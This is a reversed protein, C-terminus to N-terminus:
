AQELFFVVYDLAAKADSTDLNLLSLVDHLLPKKVEVDIDSDVSLAPSLNVELLWPKFLDDILIDFGYLEFCGRPNESMELAVPLLTLIIISTMREWIKAFPIDNAQCYERLRLLDWKCGLGVGSKPENLTPCRLDFKYGSILLPNPIYRQLIANCDYTLNELNKFVFIKRGRSLDAPKCIWMSKSGQEEENAYVRVFKVYDNPLSFTQPFFDYARGYIGKMTKLTRFLSDRMTLLEIDLDKVLDSNDYELSWTVGKWWLNWYKSEGEVFPIWGEAEFVEKLLCPGTDAMRYVLMPNDENEHRNEPVRALPHAGAGCGNQMEVQRKDVPPPNKGTEDSTRLERIEIDDELDVNKYRITPNKRKVADDVNLEVDLVGLGLNMEVHSEGDKVGEIDIDEKSLFGKELKVNLEENAQKLKPLFNAVRELLELREPVKFTARVPKPEDDSIEEDSDDPRGKRINLLDELIHTEETAENMVIRHDASTNLKQARYMSAVQEASTAQEPNKDERIRIFRPFRLSIGKNPDVLGAGAFHVPSISLDAAKVEVVRVPSFWVDPRINPTDSVKYYSPPTEIVHQALFESHEKLNEETFGTSMKCISQYTESDEDYCALLYSGYWGTRKGRGSYAGIIVLDLSDGVGELYDKKVKLWNRSRVSPEYSSDADLAKVMLGECNGVISEDLFSQIEEVNNAEVSKAFEFIGPTPIFGSKLLMRRERLSKTVLPEGNYYLLDFAFLCVNVTIDEAAVDKRKRTSLVQFPLICKKVRDWAVAECDLVFTKTNEKLVKPINMLLDPYKESLNELNRSYIIITGDECKHIQAREGDYKYECAFSTNEFRNLVESISRTPHALMPKLPIGTTLRCHKEVGDLGEKLLTSVMIDYDPLQCFAQKIIGVGRLMRQEQKERSLSKFDDERQAFAHGLSILMTKEALGIRLKGELSKTESGQCSVLLSKIKGIKKAQSASGSIETIEKLTQFVKNVTLKQARGFTMQKKKSLLAVSGLDGVNAVEAKIKSVDRGTAEAVAKMLISEGLGLEKGKYDPCVKNICLYVCQLLSEESKSIVERFFKTLKEAIEIREGAKWTLGDISDSSSLSLASKEAEKGSTEAAKEDSNSTQSSNNEPNVDM